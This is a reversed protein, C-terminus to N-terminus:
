LSSASLCVPCRYHPDMLIEVRAPLKLHGMIERVLAPRKMICRDMYVVHQGTLNNYVTRGRPFEFYEQDHPARGSNQLEAWFVEHSRRHDAFEAGLEAESLQSSEVLVRDNVVFFIGVLVVPTSTPDTSSRTPIRRKQRGMRYEVSASRIKTLSQCSNKKRPVGRHETRLHNLYGGTVLDAKVTAM